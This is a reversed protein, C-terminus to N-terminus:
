LNIDILHRLDDAAVHPMVLDRGILKYPQNDFHMSSEYIESTVCGLYLLTLRCSRDPARYLGIVDDAELAPIARLHEAPMQPDGMTEFDRVIAGAPLQRFIM